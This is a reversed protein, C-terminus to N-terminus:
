FWEEVGVSGCQGEDMLKLRFRNTDMKHKAEMYSKIRSHSRQRFLKFINARSDRFFGSQLSPFSSRPGQVPTFGDLPRKGVWIITINENPPFIYNLLLAM